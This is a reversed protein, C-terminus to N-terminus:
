MPRDRRHSWRPGTTQPTKRCRVSNWWRYVVIPTGLIGMAFCCRHLDADSMLSLLPRTDTYFPALPLMDLHMMSDFFVHSITGILCSILLVSWPQRLIDLLEERFPFERGSAVKEMPLFISRLLIANAIAIGTAALYTHTWGHVPSSDNIIAILPQIDMAIQTWGFAFISMHQRLVAKFAMGPGMHIPTFPM